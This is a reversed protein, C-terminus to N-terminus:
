LLLARLAYAHRIYTVKTIWQQGIHHGFDCSRITLHSSSVVAYSIEDGKFWWLGAGRKGGFKPVLQLANVQGLNSGVFGRFDLTAPKGNLHENSISANFVLV